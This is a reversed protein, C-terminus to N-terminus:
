GGFEVNADHSRSFATALHHAAVPFREARVRINAGLDSHSMKVVEIVGVRGAGSAPYLVDQSELATASSPDETGRLFAIWRFPSTIENLQAIAGLADAANAHILVVHPDGVGDRDIALVDVPPAGNSPWAAGFYIRPVILRRILCGAVADRSRLEIRESM